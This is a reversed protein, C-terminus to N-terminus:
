RDTNPTKTRLDDGNFEGLCWDFHAVMLECENVREQEACLEVAADVTLGHSRFCQIKDIIRPEFVVGLLYTLHTPAATLVIALAGVILVVAPMWAAAERTTVLM